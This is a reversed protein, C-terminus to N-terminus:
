FGLPSIPVNFDMVQALLHFVLTAFLSISLSLGIRLGMSREGGLGSLPLALALFLFNAVNFGLSLFVPFYALSIVTFVIRKRHAREWRRLSDMLAGEDPAPRKKSDRAGMMFDRVVVVMSMIMIFIMVVDPVRRAGSAADQISYWYLATALLILAPVLLVRLIAQTSM